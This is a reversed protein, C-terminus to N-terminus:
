AAKLARRRFIGPDTKLTGAVAAPAAPQSPEPTDSPTHPRPAPSFPEELLHQQTLADLRVDTWRLPNNLHSWVGSSIKDAGLPAEDAHEIAREIHPRADTHPRGDSHDAEDSFPSTKKARAM